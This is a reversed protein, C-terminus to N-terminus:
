DQFIYGIGSTLLCIKGNNCHLCFYNWLSSRNFKLKMEGKDHSNRLDDCLNRKFNYCHLKGRQNWVKAAWCRKWCTQLQFQSLRLDIRRTQQTHSGSLFGHLLGSWLRWCMRGAPRRKLGKRGRHRVMFCLRLSICCGCWLRQSAWFRSRVPKWVCRAHMRAAGCSFM